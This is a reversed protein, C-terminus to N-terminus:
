KLFIECNPLPRNKLVTSMELKDLDLDLTKCLVEIEFKLNLKLDAYQYLEALLGMVAMLWPNPPKFAKSKSSYDLIKCIFPIALISTLRNSEAGEIM